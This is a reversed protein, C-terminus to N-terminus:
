SNELERLASELNKSREIEGEIWGLNKEDPSYILDKACLILRQIKQWDSESMVILNEGSVNITNVNM